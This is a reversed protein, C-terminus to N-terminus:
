KTESMIQARCIEVLRARAPPLPANYLSTVYRELFHATLKLGDILDQAGRYSGGVLFPPLALLRDKYPIAASESVARGTHPASM